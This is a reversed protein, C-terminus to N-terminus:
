CLDHILSKLEDLSLLRIVANGLGELLIFHIGSGQKKKDKCVNESILETDIVAEVPLGASEILAGLAETEAAKMLGFHQSIRSAYLMGLAVAEGHFHEGNREIAHGITHGFNLLRRLGGEREDKQVIDVKTAVSVAVVQEMIQSDRALLGEMNEELYALFSRDCIAGYKIVEAIGSVYEREPLTQVLDLDCWVFAPQVISGVLNKYGDLNVGNKGGISADVQGLLTTSIFGFRLGRLMTSAVFGAVDTALGGGVGLVLTNRDVEMALLERYLSAVTELTKFAEGSPIAICKYGSFVPAHLDLVKEDILILPPPDLSAIRASLGTGIVIDTTGSSAKLRINQM